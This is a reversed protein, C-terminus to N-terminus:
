YLLEALRRRSEDALPNGPGILHFVDVMAERVKQPGGRTGLEAASLLVKLAEEYSGVAALICGLQYRADFSKPDQELRKRASGEDGFPRALARLKLLARLREAEEGTAGVVGVEGLVEEVEADKNQALLVRALGVRAPEHHADAELARRYLAEAEAPRDKARAAAEKVLRDADSPRLGDLFQSIQAEPILGMFESVPQGDKFALVTPFGEIRLAGTVGPSEDANVKALIVEGGRQHVQRELLPALLRCPQCWAAWFDVVVPVERSRQLVEREFSEDDVNIIWPSASV